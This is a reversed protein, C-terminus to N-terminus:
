YSNNDQDSNGCSPKVFNGCWMKCLNAVDCETCLERMVHQMYLECMVDQVSNGCSLKCITGVDCETCLEWM